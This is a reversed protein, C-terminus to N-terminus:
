LKWKLTHYCIYLAKLELGIKSFDLCQVIPGKIALREYYIEANGTM